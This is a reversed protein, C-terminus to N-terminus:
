EDDEDEDEYGPIYEGCNSCEGGYIPTVWEGCCSCFVEGM